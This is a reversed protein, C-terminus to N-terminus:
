PINGCFKNGIVNGIIFKYGNYTIELVGTGFVAHVHMKEKNMEELSLTFNM